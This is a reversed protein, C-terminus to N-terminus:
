RVVLGEKDKMYWIQMEVFQLGPNFIGTWRNLWVLDSPFSGM